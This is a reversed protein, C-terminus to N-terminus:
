KPASIFYDLKRQLKSISDNLARISKNQKNITNDKNDIVKKLNKIEESDSTSSPNKPSKRNRERNLDNTLVTIEEDRDKILKQLRVIQSKAGIKNHKIEYRYFGFSTLFLSALIFATIIWIWPTRSM